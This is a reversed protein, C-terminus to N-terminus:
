PRAPPLRHPTRASFSTWPTASACFSPGQSLRYLRAVSEGAETWSSPERLDPSASRAGRDASPQRTALVGSGRCRAVRPWGARSRRFREDADTRLPPARAPWRAPGTSREARVDHRPAPCKGAVPAGGSRGPLLRSITPAVDGPRPRRVPRRPVRRRGRRQGLFGPGHWMDAGVGMSRTSGIRTDLSYLWIRGDCRPARCRGDAVQWEPAAVVPVPPPGLEARTKSVDIRRYCGGARRSDAESVPNWIPRDPESWAFCVLDPLGLGTAAAAWTPGALDGAVARVGDGYIESRTTLWIPQRWVASLATSASSSRRGCDRTLTSIPSVGCTSQRQRRWPASPLPCREVCLRRRAASATGSRHDAGASLRQAKLNLMYSLLGLVILGSRPIGWSPSSRAARAAPLGRALQAALRRVTADRGASLRHFAADPALRRVGGAAFHGAPGCGGAEPWRFPQRAPAAPSKGRLARARLDDDGIDDGGLQWETSDRKRNPVLRTSSSSAAARAPPRM